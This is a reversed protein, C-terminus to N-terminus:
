GLEGIIQIPYYTILVVEHNYESEFRQKWQTFYDLSEEDQSAPVLVVLTILLDVAINEQSLYYGRYPPAATPNAETYGGYKQVVEATFARLTSRDVSRRENTQRDTYEVPLFIEYRIYHAV